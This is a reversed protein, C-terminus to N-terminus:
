IDFLIEPVSIAMTNGGFIHESQQTLVDAYNVLIQTNLMTKVHMMYRIPITM